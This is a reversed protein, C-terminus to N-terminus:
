SNCFDLLQRADDISPNVVALFHFFTSEKCTGAKFNYPLTYRKGIVSKFNYHKHIYSIKPLKTLFRYPM